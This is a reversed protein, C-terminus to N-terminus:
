DNTFEKDETIEYWKVDSGDLGFFEVVDEYNYFGTLYTESVQGHSLKDIFKVNWKKYTKENM